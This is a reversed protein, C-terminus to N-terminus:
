LKTCYILTATKKKKKFNYIRNKRQKRGDSTEHSFRQLLLWEPKRKLLLKTNLPQTFKQNHLRNRM